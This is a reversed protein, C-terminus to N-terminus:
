RPQQLGIVAMMRGTKGKERRYSFFSDKQCSTCLECDIIKKPDVGAQCLIKRNTLRLDWFIERNRYMIGDFGPFAKTVKESLDPQIQFCCPGIGPGIFVELDGAVSGFYEGLAQVTNLVVRDMTGKWGSHAMGVARQQPDYILVPICDAYFSALVIGPCDTVMADLGPLANHHDKAGRGAQETKIRAVGNGHVQQCCVVQELGLGWIQLFARRNSLVAAPRDGVHLGMNLSDYPALSEGGQRGSFAMYIGQEVWHPITIYPIEQKKQWLWKNL